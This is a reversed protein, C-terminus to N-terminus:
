RGSIPWQSSIDMQRLTNRTYRYGLNLLKGAEPNYRAAVSYAETQVQNPNYQVLSDLSWARTMKGGIMLLIDSRSNSDATAGPLTVQPAQFSFQQALGVRLRETGDADDIARSTLALTLMDADGVRDSGLFRNETFMQSFSSDRPLGGNPCDNIM